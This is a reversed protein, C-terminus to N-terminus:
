EETKNEIIKILTRDPDNIIDMMSGFSYKTEINKNYPKVVKIVTKNEPCNEILSPQATIVVDARDYITM